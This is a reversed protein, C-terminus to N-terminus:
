VKKLNIEVNNVDTYWHCWFGWLWGFLTPQMWSIESLNSLPFSDSTTQVTDLIYKTFNGLNNRPHVVSYSMIIEESNFNHMTSLQTGFADFPELDDSISKDCGAIKTAISPPFSDLLTLVNYLIYKRFNSLNNRPSVFGYSMFIEESNFSHM